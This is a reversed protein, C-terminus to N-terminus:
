KRSLLYAKYDTIGVEQLRDKDARSLLGIIFNNSDIDLATCSMRCLEVVRSASMVSYYFLGRYSKIYQKTQAEETLTFFDPIESNVSTMIDTLSMGRIDICYDLLRLLMEYMRSCEYDHNNITVFGICSGTITDNLNGYALSFIGTTGTINNKVSKNAKETSKNPKEVPRSPKETNTTPINIKEITDDADFLKKCVVQSIMDNPLEYTNITKKIFQVFDKSLGTRQSELWKTLEQRFLSVKAYSSISINSINEKMLMKIFRVDESSLSLINFKYFPETDMKNKEFSDTFLMYEIGNTLIALKTSSVSYYRFLQSVNEQTLSNRCDKCEILIYPTNGNMICYDVKEGKKTGFDCSYEPVVETPNFVDYGLLQIFPAIFAMKTHEESKILDKSAEVKKNLNELDTQLSM